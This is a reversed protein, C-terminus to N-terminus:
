RGFVVAVAALVVVVCALKIWNLVARLLRVQLGVQYNLLALDLRTHVAALHSATEDFHPGNEWQKLFDDYTSNSFASLMANEHSRGLERQLKYEDRMSENAM